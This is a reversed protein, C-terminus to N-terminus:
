KRLARRDARTQAHFGARIPAVSRSSGCSQCHVFYLRSVSDRSLTTSPSRCTQCAVYELIYKRLLSEIYKPVYRGRLVLRNSGDISGETGLEAVVFQFVHEASRNMIKCVDPFNDWRTKKTGLRVLMIQPMRIPSPGTPKDDGGELIRKVRALLEEYTYLAEQKLLIISPPDDTNITIIMFMYVGIIMIIMWCGVIISPVSPCSEHSVSAEPGDVIAEVKEEDDEKEVEAAREAKKKKPKKVSFVDDLEGDGTAAGGEESAAATKSKSSKKKTAFINEEDDGGEGEEKAGEDTNGL